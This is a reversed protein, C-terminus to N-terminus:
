SVVPDAMEGLIVIKIREIQYRIGSPTVSSGKPGFLRDSLKVGIKMWTEPVVEDLEALREM